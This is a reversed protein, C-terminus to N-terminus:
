TESKMGLLVPLLAYDASWEEMCGGELDLKLTMM